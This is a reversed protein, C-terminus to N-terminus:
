ERVAPEGKLEILKKEKYKAIPIYKKQMEEKRKAPDEYEELHGTRCYWLVKERYDKDM